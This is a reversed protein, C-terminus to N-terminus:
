FYGRLLEIKLCSAEMQLRKDGCIRAGVTKIWILNLIFRRGRMEFGRGM